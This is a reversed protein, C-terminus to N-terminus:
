HNKKKKKKILNSILLFFYKKTTFSGNHMHFFSSITQKLSLNPRYGTRIFLNFKMFDPIEEYKLLKYDRKLLSLFFGNEGGKTTSNGYTSTQNKTNEKGRNKTTNATKNKM